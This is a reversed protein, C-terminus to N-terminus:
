QACSESTIRVTGIGRGDMRYFAQEIVGGAELVPRMADNACINQILNQKFSDLLHYGRANVTYLYRLTTADTVIQFLTTVEDIKQPVSVEAAMQALTVELGQSRIMFNIGAAQSAPDM